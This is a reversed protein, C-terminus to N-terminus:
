EDLQPDELARVEVEGAGRDLQREVDARRAAAGSSVAARNARRIPRRFARGPRASDPKRWRKAARATARSTRAIAASDPM